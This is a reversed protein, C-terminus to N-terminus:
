LPSLIFGHLPDGDKTGYGIIEGKDNVDFVWELTWESNGAALQDQLVTIKGDAFTAPVCPASQSTARELLSSLWKPKPKKTQLGSTDTANGVVLGVNNIAAPVFHPNGTDRALGFLPAGRTYDYRGAVRTKDNIAAARWSIWANGPLSVIKGQSYLYSEACRWTGCDSKVFIAEGRHNLGTPIIRNSEEGCAMMTAMIDGKTHDYLVLKGRCARPLTRPDTEGLIWGSNNIKTAEMMGTSPNLDTVKGNKLIFAHRRWGWHPNEKCVEELCISGVVEATDNIALGWSGTGGLGGIRTVTGSRFLFAEPASFLSVATGTVDGNRNIAAPIIGAGLDTVRYRSATAETTAFSLTLQLGLFASVMVTRGM